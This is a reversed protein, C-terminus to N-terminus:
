AIDILFLLFKLFIVCPKQEITSCVCSRRQVPISQFGRGYGDPVRPIDELVRCGTRKSTDYLACNGICVHYQAGGTTEDYGESARICRLEKYLRCTEM